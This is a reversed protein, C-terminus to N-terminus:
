AAPLRAPRGGTGDRADDGRPQAVSTHQASRTRLRDELLLVLDALPYATAVCTWVVTEVAAVGLEEWGTVGLIM